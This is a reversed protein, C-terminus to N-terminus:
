GEVEKALDPFLSELLIRQLRGNRRLLPLDLNWGDKEVNKARQYADEVKSKEVLCFRSSLMKISVEIHKAASTRLFEMQGLDEREEHPYIEEAFEHALATIQDNTLM